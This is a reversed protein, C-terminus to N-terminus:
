RMEKYGFYILISGVVIATFTWRDFMGSFMGWIAALINAIGIAVLIYTASTLGEKFKFEM